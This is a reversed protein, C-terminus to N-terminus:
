APVRGARRRYWRAIRERDLNLLYAAIAATNRAVTRIPGAAEYRRPSTWAAEDLLALDGVARIARV